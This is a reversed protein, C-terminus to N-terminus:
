LTISTFHYRLALTFYCGGRPPAQFFRPPAGPYVSPSYRIFSDCPLPRALRVSGSDHAPSRLAAWSANVPACAPPTDLRSIRLFCLASATEVPPLCCPPIRLRSCRESEALDSVGAHM